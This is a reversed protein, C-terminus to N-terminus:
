HVGPVPAPMPDELVTPGVPEFLGRAHWIVLVDYVDARGIREWWRHPELSLLIEPGPVLEGSLQDTRQVRYWHAGCSVIVTSASTLNAVMTAIFALNPRRRSEEIARGVRELAADFPDRSTDVEVVVPAEATSLSTQGRLNAIAGRIRERWTM